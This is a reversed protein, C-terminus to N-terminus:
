PATPDACALAYADEGAPRDGGSCVADNDLLIDAALGVDRDDIRRRAQLIVDTPATRIEFRAFFQEAPASQEIRASEDGDRSGIDGLDVDEARRSQVDKTSAVLEGFGSRSGFM